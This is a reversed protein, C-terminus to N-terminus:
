TLSVEQPPTHRMESLSGVVSLFMSLMSSWSLSKSLEPDSVPVLLLLAFSAAERFDWESELM